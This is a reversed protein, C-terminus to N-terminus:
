ELPVNFRYGVGHINKIYSEGSDRDIKKRLRTICVRVGDISGSSDSTWVRHLLAELNFVQGPHRMFFELLAFEMEGLDVKQSHATVEFTDGNLTIGGATLTNDHRQRGRKSLAKIRVSLEPLEFPKTLYDDAGREFGDVKEQLSDKQTLMLVLTSDGRARLQACITLGSVFPLDLDLVILDYKYTQLRLQADRGDASSEVLHNESSLWRVVMDRLLPDDEVVLIKAM